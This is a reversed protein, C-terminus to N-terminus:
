RSAAILQQTLWKVRAESMALCEATHLCSDSTCTHFNYYKEINAKNDIEGFKDWIMKKTLKGNEVAKRSVHKKKMILDKQRM